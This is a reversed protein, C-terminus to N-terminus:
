HFFTKAKVVPTEWGDYSAGFKDALENLQETESNLENLILSCEKSFVIREDASEQISYGLKKIATELKNSHVNDECYMWHRIERVTKGDDGHQGISDLIKYNQIKQMEIDTPLLNGVASQSGSAATVALAKVRDLEAKATPLIDTNAAFWVRRVGPTVQSAVKIVSPVNRELHDEIGYYLDAMRPLPMGHENLMEPTFAFHLSFFNEYGLHNLQSFNLDISIIEDPNGRRTFVVWDQEPRNGGSEPHANESHFIGKLFKGFAM